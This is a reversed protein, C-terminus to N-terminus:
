HSVAADERLFACFRENGHGYKDRLAERRLQYGKIITLENEVAQFWTIAYNQAFYEDGEESEMVLKQLSRSASEANEKTFLEEDIPWHGEGRSETPTCLPDAMGSTAILLLVVSAIFKM